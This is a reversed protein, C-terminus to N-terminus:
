LVNYTEYFFTVYYLLTANIISDGEWNLGVLSGLVDWNTTLMSFFSFRYKDSNSLAICFTNVSMIYTM